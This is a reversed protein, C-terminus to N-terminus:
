YNAQRQQDAQWRLQEQRQFLADALEKLGSASAIKEAKGLGVFYADDGRGILSYLIAEGAIDPSVKAGKAVLTYVAEARDFPNVIGEISQELSIIESETM